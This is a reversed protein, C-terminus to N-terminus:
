SLAVGEPRLEARQDTSIRGRARDGAKLHNERLLRDPVGDACQRCLPRIVRRPPPLRLGGVPDAM